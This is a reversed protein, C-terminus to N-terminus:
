PLQQIRAPSMRLTEGNEKSATEEYAKPCLGRRWRLPLVSDASRTATRRAFAGFRAVAVRKPFFRERAHKTTRLKATWKHHRRDLWKCLCGQMEAPRM